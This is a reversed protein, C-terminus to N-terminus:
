VHSERCDDAVGDRHQHQDVRRCDRQNQKRQKSFMELMALINIEPDGDKGPRSRQEIKKLCKWFLELHCKMKIKGHFKCLSKQWEEIQIETPDDRREDSQNNSQHYLFFLCNHIHSHIKLFILKQICPIVGVKM